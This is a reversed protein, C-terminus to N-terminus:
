QTFRPAHGANLLTHVVAEPCTECLTWRRYLGIIDTQSEVAESYRAADMQDSDNRCQNNKQNM